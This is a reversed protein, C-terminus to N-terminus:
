EDLHDAVEQYLATVHGDALSYFVNRGQRRYKVLRHSKLVRLQHSVASEGMKVTAALDCVCLEQQALASLLKLRHPDSLVTFFEAMRQAKETALVEPQVQRVSELHVLSQDCGPADATTGNNKRSSAPM